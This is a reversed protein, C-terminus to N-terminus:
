RAMRGGEAYGLGGFVVAILLLLDAGQPRGAGQAVAFVLVAVVGAVVGIWFARPPREDARLVAMVATAAPLLGVVVAGHAAPLRQLALSSCLPFGVVVGVAVIALGPWHHRVPLRERRVWLLLGALTAAVFARGLGVVIGGFVPVAARTAPLTLSFCLVGLGGLLVGDMARRGDITAM